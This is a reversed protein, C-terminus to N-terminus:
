FMYLRGGSEVLWVVIVRRRCTAVWLWDPLTLKLTHRVICKPVLLQVGQICHVCGSPKSQNIGRPPRCSPLKTPVILTLRYRVVLLTSVRLRVREWEVLSVGGNSIRRPSRGPAVQVRVTRGAVQVSVTRGAVHVIETRGVVADGKVSAFVKGARDRM